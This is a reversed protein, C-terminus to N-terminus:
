AKRSRTKTTLATLDCYVEAYNEPADLVRKWQREDVINFFVALMNAAIYNNTILLQPESLHQHEEEFERPHKDTPNLIEPHYQNALPPTLNKDARRIHVLVNGQTWDCGGSIITVNRLQEARDSVLKRSKHNDVCLLVVDNEQILQVANQDDLYVPHDFVKVQPFQERYAEAVICAKPGVKAFDQRDRHREEFRGGDILSIQVNPFKEGNFNLYRCLTPLLCRAISGVGIVKVHLPAKRAIPSRGKQSSKKGM